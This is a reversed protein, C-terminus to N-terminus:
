GEDKIRRGGEERKDKGRKKAIIPASM